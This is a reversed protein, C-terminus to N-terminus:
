KVSNEMAPLGDPSWGLRRRVMAAIMDITGGGLIRLSTGLWLYAGVMAARLALSPWLGIEFMPLVLVLVVTAALLGYMAAIAGVPWVIRYERQGLRAYIATAIVGGVLTGGAAGFAGWYKTFVACFIVNLALSVVSLGALLATKKAFLLQPLKGFFLAAYYLALIGVIPIAAHYSPPTLFAIAERAFAAVILAAGISVYLFPMLYTAIAAGGGAEAAFMRRYVQPAFVNELANMLVFVAYAVRQALAYVGVGGISSLLGVVYKDINGAAVKLLVRPALPYSMRLAARLYAIDFTMPVGAMGRTIVLGFVLSSALLQGIAMGIVGSRLAVVFVLSLLVGIVNEDITYRVYARANEANRFYTLYYSKISVIASGCFTWFLLPGYQPSRMVLLSLRDAFVWTAAGAMILLAAVFAVTSYLQAGRERATRCEFFNREYVVPLGFGAAATAVTGYVTALAWAGYDEKSLVRTLLPLSLVPLVAGVLVTLLYLVSHTVQQEPTPAGTSRGNVPTAATTGDAPRM